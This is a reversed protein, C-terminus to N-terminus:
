VGNLWKLKKQEYYLKQLMLFRLILKLQFEEITQTKICYICYFISTTINPLIINTKGVTQIKGYHHNYLITKCLRLEYWRTIPSTINQAFLVHTGRRTNRLVQKETFLLLKQAVRWLCSIALVLLHTHPTELDAGDAVEKNVAVAAAARTCLKCQTM